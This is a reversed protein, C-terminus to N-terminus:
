GVAHRLVGGNLEVLGERFAEHLRAPVAMVMETAIQNFM